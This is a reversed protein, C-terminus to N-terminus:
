QVRFVFALLDVFVGSIVPAVVTYIGYCREVTNSIAVALVLPSSSFSEPKELKNCPCQAGVSINCGSSLDCPFTVLSFRLKGFLIITCFVM